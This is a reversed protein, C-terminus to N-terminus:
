IENVIFKSFFEKFDNIDLMLYELNNVKCYEEAAKAKCLVITDQMLDLPKVEVLYRDEILFDPIYNRVKKNVTDYYPIMLTEYLVKRIKIKKCLKVFELEWTSRFRMRGYPTNWNSNILEYPIAKVNLINKMFSDAYSSGLNEDVEKMVNQIGVMLSDPGALLRGVRKQHKHKDTAKNLERLIRSEEDPNINM